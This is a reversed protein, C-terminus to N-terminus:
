YLEIIGDVAFRRNGSLHPHANYRPYATPRWRTHGIGVTGKFKETPIEKLVIRDVTKVVTIEGNDLLLVQRIMAIQILTKCATLCFVQRSGPAQSVVIGCMFVGKLPINIENLAATYAVVFVSM